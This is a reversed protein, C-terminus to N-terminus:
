DCNRFVEVTENNTMLLRKVGLTKLPKRNSDQVLQLNRYAKKSVAIPCKYVIWQVTEYCPPTTLSGGYTYFSQDCPLADLPSIGCEVTKYHTTTTTSNKICNSYIFGLDPHDGCYYEDDEKEAGKLGNLDVPDHERIEEYYREMYDSLRKAFRVKCKSRKKQCKQRYCTETKESSYCGDKSYRHNMLELEKINCIEEEEEKQEQEEQEEEQEQEEKQEQEDQEQEQEEEEEKEQVKIMVALVVLGDKAPKAKKISDFGMDYFVLHAEMPYFKDNISHESGEHNNVDSESNDRQNRDGDKGLHVHIQAFIYKKDKRMPVNTLIINNHKNSQILVDFNPAHGNNFIRAPVRQHLNLFTLDDFHRKTTQSTDINIPSQRVDSGCTSWCQHVNCWLDPGECNKLEYSFHAEQIDEYRCKNQSAPRIGIYGAGFIGVLLSSFLVERMLFYDMM